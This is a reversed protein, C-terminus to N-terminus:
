SGTVFSLADRGEADGLHLHQVIKIKYPKFKNKKLIDSVKTRHVGVEKEIKRCSSSPEVQVCALVNTEEAERSQKNYIKQRPRNFIGFNILNRKLRIFM